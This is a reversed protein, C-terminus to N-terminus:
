LQNKTPFKEAQAIPRATQHVTVGNAPFGFRIVGGPALDVTLGQKNWIELWAIGPHSKNWRYLEAATWGNQRLEQRHDHLWARATLSLKGHEGRHVSPISLQGEMKAPFTVSAWMCEKLGDPLLKWGDPYTGVAPYLCGLFLKSTDSTFDIV